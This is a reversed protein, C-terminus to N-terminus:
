SYVEVEAATAKCRSKPPQPLQYENMCLITSNNMLTTVFSSQVKHVVLAVAGSGAPAPGSAAPWAPARARRALRYAPGQPDCHPQGRGAKLKM